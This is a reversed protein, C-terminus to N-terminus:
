PIQIAYIKCTATKVEINIVQKKSTEEIDGFWASEFPGIIATESKEVTVELDGYINQWYKGANIIVKADKLDDTNQAILILKGDINMEVFATAEDQLTYIKNTADITVGGNLVAKHATIETAMNMVGQKIQLSPLVRGEM